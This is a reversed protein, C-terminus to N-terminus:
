QAGRPQSDLEIKIGGDQRVDVRAEGSLVKVAVEGSVKFSQAFSAILAERQANGNADKYRRLYHEIRVAPPAISFRSSGSAPDFVITNL